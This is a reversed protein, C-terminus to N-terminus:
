ADLSARLIVRYRSPALPSRPVLAVFLGHLAPAGVAGRGSIASDALLASPVTTCEMDRLEFQQIRVAAPRDTAALAADRLGVM